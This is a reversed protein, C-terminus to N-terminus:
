EGWERERYSCKQHFHVQKQEPKSPGARSAVATTVAEAAESALAMTRKRKRNLLSYTKQNGKLHFAIDVFRTKSCKFTM